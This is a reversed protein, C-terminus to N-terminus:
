KWNNEPFYTKQCFFNYMQFKNNNQGIREGRGGWKYRPVNNKCKYKYKTTTLLYVYNCITIITWKRDGNLLLNQGNNKTSILFILPHTIINVPLPPQNQQHLFYSHWSLVVSRGCTPFEVIYTKCVFNNVFLLINLFVYSLFM